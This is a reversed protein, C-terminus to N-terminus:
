AFNTCYRAKFKLYYKNMIFYLNSLTEVDDFPQKSELCLLEQRMVIVFEQLLPNSMKGDYVERTNSQTTRGLYYSITKCLYFFNQETPTEFDFQYCKWQRKVFDTCYDSHDVIGKTSSRKEALYEAWFFAPLMQKISGFNSAAAYIKPMTQMDSVHGMEHYLTNVILKFNENNNLQQIDYVSIKDYLRSTLIIKKGGPVTQGDTDYSFTKADILEIEELNDLCLGNGWIAFVYKVVNKFFSDLQLSYRCFVKM